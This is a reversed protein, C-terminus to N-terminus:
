GGNTAAVDQAWEQWGMGYCPWGARQALDAWKEAWEPSNDCEQLLQEAEAEIDM